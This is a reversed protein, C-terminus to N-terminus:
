EPKKAFQIERLAIEREKLDLERLRLDHDRRDNIARREMELEENVSRKRLFSALEAELDIVNRTDPDKIKKRMREKDVTNCDDGDPVITTSPLVNSDSVNVSTSCVRKM